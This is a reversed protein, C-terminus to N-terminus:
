ARTSTSRSRVIARTQGVPTRDHARQGLVGLVVQPQAPPQPELEPAVVLVQGAEDVVDLRGARVAHGGFKATHQAHSGGPILGIM